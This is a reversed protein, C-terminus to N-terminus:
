GFNLSYIKARQVTTNRISVTIYLEIQGKLKSFNGLTGNVATSQSIRHFVKAIIHASLRFGVPGGKYVSGLSIFYVMSVDGVEAWFFKGFFM